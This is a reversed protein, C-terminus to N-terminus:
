VRKAAKRCRSFITAVTGGSSCHAISSGQIAEPLSFVFGPLGTKARLGGGHGKGRYPRRKAILSWIFEEM